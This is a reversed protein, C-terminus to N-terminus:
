YARLLVAGGNFIKEFRRAQTASSSHAAIPIHNTARSPPESPASHSDLGGTM